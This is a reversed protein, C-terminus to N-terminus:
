SVLFLHLDVFVFLGRAVCGVDAPVLVTRRGGERMGAVAFWLAPPPKPGTAGSYLGGAPGDYTSAGGGPKPKIILMERTLTVSRPQQGEGAAKLELTM